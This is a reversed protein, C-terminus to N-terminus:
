GGLRGALLKNYRDEQLAETGAKMGLGVQDLFDKYQEKASDAGVQGARGCCLGLVSFRERFVGGLVGDVPQM